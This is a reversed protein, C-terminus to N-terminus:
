AILPQDLAKDEDEEQAVKNKKKYHCRCAIFCVILALVAVGIIVWIYWPGGTGTVGMDQTNYGIFEDQDEDAIADADLLIKTESDAGRLSLLVTPPSVVSCATVHGWCKQNSPCERDTGGYCSQSCQANASGWSSGCYNRNGAEPPSVEPCSDVNAYCTEGAQCEGDTGGYCSRGCQKASGWSSGCYNHNPPTSGCPGSQCGSGCYADTAGCYGSSSCCYSNYGGDACTRNQFDSGCRWVEATVAVFNSLLLFLITTQRNM